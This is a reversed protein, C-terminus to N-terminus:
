LCCDLVEFPPVIGMAASRGTKPEEDIIQSTNESFPKVLNMGSKDEEFSVNGVRDNMGFKTIQAYASRTVKQLDDQAGSFCLSIM